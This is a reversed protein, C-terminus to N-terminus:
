SASRQAHRRRLAARGEHLHYKVAGSTIGMLRAVEAVSLEDIYYLSVATRQQAPLAALAALLSGDGRLADIELEDDHERHLVALRSMARAKRADRRTEDILLNIAVRRIWGVPDDLRRVKRWRSYARVFAEQVAEEARGRDGFAVTLSRVLADYRAVFVADFDGGPGSTQENV